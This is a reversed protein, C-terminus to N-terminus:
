VKLSSVFTFVWISVCPLCSIPSYFALKILCSSFYLSFWFAQPVLFVLFLDFPCFGFTAFLQLAVFIFYLDIFLSSFGSVYWPSVLPSVAPFVPCHCLLASWVCLCLSYLCLCVHSVGLKWQIPTRQTAARIQNQEAMRCDGGTATQTRWPAPWPTGAIIM